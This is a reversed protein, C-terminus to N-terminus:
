FAKEANYIKKVFTFCNNNILNYTGMNTLLARAETEIYAEDLGPKIRGLYAYTTRGGGFAAWDDRGHESLM